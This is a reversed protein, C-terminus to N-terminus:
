LQCLVGQIRLIDVEGFIKLTQFDPQTRNKAWNPLLRVLVPQDELRFKAVAVAVAALQNKGTAENNEIGRLRNYGLGTATPQLRYFQPVTGATAHLTASAMQTMTTAAATRQTTTTTPITTTTAATARQTADDDDDDDDHNNNATAETKAESDGNDLQLRHAECRAKAAWAVCDSKRHWHHPPPPVLQCSSRSPDAFDNINIIDNNNTTRGSAAGSCASGVAVLGALATAGVVVITAVAAVAIVVGRCPSMLQWLVVVVVVVIVVIVAIVVVIIATVWGCM